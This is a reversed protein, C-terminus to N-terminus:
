CKSAQRYWFRVESALPQSVFIADTERLGLYSFGVVIVKCGTLAREDSVMPRCLRVGYM